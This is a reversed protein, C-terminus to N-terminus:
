FNIEKDEISNYLDDLKPKRSQVFQIYIGCLFLLVSIIQAVKFGGIMLSDTRFIEIVFRGVSYWMLYFGALQGNKIYRRRRIFLSFVFGLFCWISEFYFMPLHYAGNIYMNDIIFQPIIKMNILTQYSVASGYAESNFFNGWRGIAQGLLLAPIIIDLIKGLNAKYKKCYIFITLAGAILGGHIALGGNWIQIIEAPNDLYYNLNFVVYYLRAGVIAFLLTWFMLNFMFEQKVQFRRSESMIMFYAIVIATAILVSYWRLDFGGFSVIIPNM